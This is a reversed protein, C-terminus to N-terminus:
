VIGDEGGNAIERASSPLFAPAGHQQGSTSHVCAAAAPRELHQGDSPRPPDWNGDGRNEDLVPARGRIALPENAKAKLGSARREPNTRSALHGLGGGPQHRSRPAAVDKTEAWWVRVTATSVPPLPPALVGPAWRRAYRSNM